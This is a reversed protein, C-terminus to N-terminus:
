FRLRGVSIGQNQKGGSKGLLSKSYKSWVQSPTPPTKIYKNRPYKPCLRVYWEM